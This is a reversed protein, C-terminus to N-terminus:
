KVSQLDLNIRVIIPVHNFLYCVTLIPLITELGISEAEEESVQKGLCPRRSNTSSVTTSINSMDSTWHTQQHHHPHIMIARPQGNEVKGNDGYGEYYPRQYNLNASGISLESLDSNSKKVYEFGDKKCVYFNYCTSVFAVLSIIALFSHLTVIFVNYKVDMEYPMFKCLNLPFFDFMVVYENNKQKALIAAVGVCACLTTLCFLHYVIHAITLYNKLSERKRYLKISFLATVALTSLTSAQFTHISNFIWVFVTCYEFHISSQNIMQLVTYAIITLNRVISQILVAVIATDFCKWYRKNKYFIAVTWILIITVIPVAVITALQLRSYQLM